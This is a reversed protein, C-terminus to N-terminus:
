RGNADILKARGTWVNTVLRYGDQQNDLIAMEFRDVGGDPYFNVERGSPELSISEPITSVRNLKSAIRTSEGVENTSALWYRRGEVDFHIRLVEGQTVARRNAYALLRVVDNAFVQLQLHNFTRQFRPVSFGVMVGMIVIVAMLELLTFGAVCRKISPNNGIPSIM